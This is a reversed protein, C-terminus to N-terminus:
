SSKTIQKIVKVLGELMQLKGEDSYASFYKRLSEDKARKINELTQRGKRTIELATVREDDPDSKRVLFGKKELRKSLGTTNAGTVLMNRSTNTITNRGKESNGLFRLVNYQAFTLGYNRFVNSIHKKLLEATRVIAMMTREDTSLDRQYSYKAM